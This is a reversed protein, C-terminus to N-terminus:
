CQDPIMITYLNFLNQLIQYLEEVTGRLLENPINDPGPIKGVEPHIHSETNRGSTM